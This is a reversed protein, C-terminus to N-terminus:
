QADVIVIWSDRNRQGDHDHIRSSSGRNDCPYNVVYNDAAFASNRVCMTSSGGGDLNIAYQPNFYQALFVTLWYASMGTGGYGSAYRGDCVVMLFHNGETLAVATRPFLSTQHTYPDESSTSTKPHLNKFQKGVPNFDQILMPASSILGPWEGTCLQYFLREEQVTKTKTPTNPDYGDFAIKLNRSGDTYFTGESKWNPVGTDSIFNNPMYSEVIGYPYDVLTTGNWVTNAKLAISAREYGGNIAAYADTAELIDSCVTSTSYVVKM